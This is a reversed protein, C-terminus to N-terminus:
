GSCTQLWLSAPDKVWQTLGTDPQMSSFPEPSLPPGQLHRPLFAGESWHSEQERARKLRENQTETEGGIFGTSMFTSGGAGGDHMAGKAQGQSGNPAWHARM